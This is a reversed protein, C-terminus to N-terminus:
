EYLEFVMLLSKADSKLFHSSVSVTVLEDRGDNDVDKLQFDNVCGPIDQTRWVNTLTMGDWTLGTVYGKDYVRLREIHEGTKFKNIAAAVDDVGDGDMDKAVMRPPIYIRRPMLSAAGRKDTLLNPRDIYNDSGGLDESSKWQVVGGEDLLRVTGFENTVLFEQAEPSTFKGSTFSFLWEVGKPLLGRKGTKIRKGIRVKDKKWQVLRLSGDYDKNTGMRQALLVEGQGPLSTVRLYWNLGRALYTFAGEEYALIFSRLNDEVTSTVCIEARGDENIDIVDLTLYNNNKAEKFEGLLKLEKGEDRYLWLQHHDMCVIENRGDGDVDGASVGKLKRQPFGQLKTYGVAQFMLYQRLEGPRGQEYSTARGVIRNRIDQAFTSVKAMVEDMGKHQVFASATARAGPVHVVKADLSIYEGVKTISGYVVYDAGVRNGLWRAGQDTVDGGGLDPLFREVLPKDVTEIEGEVIIRTSIIDWIGSRLYSLDEESHVTFPLVAVRLPQQAASGLPILALFAAALIIVHKLRMIVEKQPGTKAHMM